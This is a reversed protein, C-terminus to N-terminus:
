FIYGLSLALYAGEHLAPISELDDKLWPLLSESRSDLEATSTISYRYGIRIDFQVGGKKTSMGGVFFDLTGMKWEISGDEVQVDVNLHTYGLGMYAPTDKLSHFYGAEFSYTDGECDLGTGSCVSSEAEEALGKSIFSGAGLEFGQFKDEDLGIFFIKYVDFVSSDYGANIGFSPDAGYAYLPFFVSVFLALVAKKFISMKLRRESNQHNLSHEGRLHSIGINTTQSGSSFRLHLLRPKRGAQLGSDEASAGLTTAARRIAALVTSSSAM